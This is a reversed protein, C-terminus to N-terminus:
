LCKNPQPNIIYGWDDFSFLPVSLSLWPTPQSIDIGSLNIKVKSPFPRGNGWVDEYHGVTLERELFVM